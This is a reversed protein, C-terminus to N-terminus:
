VYLHIMWGDARGDTVHNIIERNYKRIVDNKQRTCSQLEYSTSQRQERQGLDNGLKWIEGKMGKISEVAGTNQTSIWTTTLTLLTIVILYFYM